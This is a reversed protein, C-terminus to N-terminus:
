MGFASLSTLSLAHLCAGRLGYSNLFGYIVFTIMNYCLLVSLLYLNSSSYCELFGGSFYMESFIVSYLFIALSLRWWRKKAALYYAFFYLLVIAFKM